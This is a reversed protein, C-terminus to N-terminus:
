GPQHDAGGGHEGRDQGAAAGGQHHLVVPGGTVVLGEHLHGGGARVHGAAGVAARVPLRHGARYTRRHDGDVHGGLATLGGPGPHDQVGVVGVDEGVVVHDVAGLLDSDREVVPPHVLRLHDAGVRGGVQGDDLEGVRRVVQLGGGQAGGLVELHALRHHRHAVREPEARRHGGADDGGQVPRHGGSVLEVPLLHDGVGDLDVGGDVGAVGTTRQEVAGPVDDPDGGRDGGAPLGVAADTQAERDRDVQGGGDGVLQDLVTGGLVGVQAHGEGVTRRLDPIGGPDTGLHVLHHGVGRCCLGTQLLPVHDDLDIVVSDATGLGEGPVHAGVGGAVLDGQGHDAVPLLLLDGGGEGGPLVDGGS